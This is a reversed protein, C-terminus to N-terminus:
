LTPQQTKHLSRAQSVRCTMRYDCTSTCKDDLSDVPFDGHRINQIFEHILGHVIARTDQWGGTPTEDDLKDTLAGKADYGAGMSWYSAQLPTAKGEFVLAQAAEVYIPLQLQQGTILQDRKFKASRGSKYDIVNFLTKGDVAAVDIRDIQGTIKIPEGDINITFTKDTSDPDAVDDGRRDPGFRFEFHTPTMAPGLKACASNYKSQNDFHRVSWKLIQRHDLEHLAADIGGPKSGFKRDNAVQQLHALFAAAEEDPTGPTREKRLVLWDRHFKALVDHLRSGRRAFDTELVLDGLSQLGLVHQMFFRFPCTAYTEWQSASWTHQKGFRQALRDAIVSSTLLGEAPGFSQGRARAHVIKLGADISAALPKIDASSLIGALLHRDADKSTARAVAQIRWDAMSYPTDDPAIPSLHPPTRRIRNQCSTTLRELEVVYPSPPLSQAKDDLAPFSITLSEEARTIMEYFLLMEGQPRTAISPAGSRSKKNQQAALRHYDADSALRGSSEPSPFAQESMGALFLHKASINRAATATLVRVRGAESQTRPLSVNTTVERLLTLVDARTLKRPPQQLWADLREIAAFYTLLSKWAAHDVDPTVGQTKSPCTISPVAGRGESLSLAHWGDSDELFHAIGLKTGLKELAQCWETPTATPPLEELANALQRMAPLATIATEVRHQLHQSRESAPSPDAALGAVREVLEDRGVAVQLDRVLWDAARRSENTLEGLMNNTIVAVVRRFRWDEQDLQLLDLLTKIAPTTAIAPTPELYFPIGFDAFVERIRPAVSTLGRFIVLIDAASTPKNANTLRAKIRRAIQVIEDQEGAAEVIEIHALAETAATPPAPIQKPHGFVHQAFYDLAPNPLPRPLLQRIELKPFHQQLELLTAAAKAFLDPRPSQSAPLSIYLHKSHQSLLRFIEHQTGTFDTFGDAVILELNQFCACTNEALADRAAEHAGERDILGHKALLTEYDRYLHALETQELDSVARIAATSYADPRINRRKLETIHEAVLGVFGPQSAADSFFSLKQKERANEVVRRVLERKLITDIPKLRANSTALVQDTLDEFTLVGSHLCATLGTGVLEDRVVAATRGNPALWLARNFSGSAANEL